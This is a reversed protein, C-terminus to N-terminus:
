GAPEPKILEYVRVREVGLEDHHVGLVYSAGVELPHFGAPLAVPTLWEGEASFVDWTTPGSYPEAVQPLPDRPADGREVWLLGDTTALVRYHTPLSEPYVMMDVIARRIAPDQYPTDGLPMPGTLIRDTFAARLSASVPLPVAPTRIRRVVAGGPGVLALDMREPWSLVALEGLVVPALTPSFASPFTVRESRVWRGTNFTGLTDLPGGDAAARIVVGSLVGLGQPMERRPANQLLLLSGDEFVDALQAVRGGPRPVPVSRAFEGADDFVKLPLAPVQFAWIEGGRRVCRNLQRLETPGAGQGASQRLFRGAADYYRITRDAQNCLVLSGDQLRSAGVIGSLLYEPEGVLEGIELMPDASLTWVQGGRSAPSSSQAILVGASDTVAFPPPETMPEPACVALALLLGLPAPRAARARERTMM